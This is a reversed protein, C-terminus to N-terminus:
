NRKKGKYKSVVILINKKKLDLHIFNLYKRNSIKFDFYGNKFM